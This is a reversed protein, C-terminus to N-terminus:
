INGVTYANVIIRRATYIITINANCVGSATALVAAPLNITSFQRNRLIAIGSEDQDLAQSFRDGSPGQIALTRARQRRLYTPVSM